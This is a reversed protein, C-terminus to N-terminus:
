ARKMQKTIGRTGPPLLSALSIEGTGNGRLHELVCVLERSRPYAHSDVDLKNELSAAEGLFSVWVM